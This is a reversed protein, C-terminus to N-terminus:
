RRILILKDAIRLVALQVGNKNSLKTIGGEFVKDLYHDRMLKRIEQGVKVRNMDDDDIIILNSDNEFDKFIEDLVELLKIKSKDNTSADSDLIFEKMELFTM